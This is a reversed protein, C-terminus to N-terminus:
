FLDDQDRSSSLKVECFDIQQKTGADVLVVKLKGSSPTEFENNDLMQGQKITAIQM